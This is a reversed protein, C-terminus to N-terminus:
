NFITMLDNEEIYKFNYNFIGQNDIIASKFNKNKVLWNNRESTKILIVNKIIDISIFGLINNVYLNLHYLLQRDIFSLDINENAVELLVDCHCPYPSCYCLLNKGKLETKVKALLPQNRILDHKFLAIAEGRTKVKYKAQTNNKHSYPNGFDSGRGCYVADFPYYDRKNYVRYKM